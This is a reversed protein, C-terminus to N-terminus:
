RRHGIFGVVYGIGTTLAITAGIPLDLLFAVLTGVLSFLMSCLCSIGMMHSLRTAFLNATAAPLTLMTLVLIIGVVQMLIVTTIAILVLLFTYLKQIPIGQLRAEEEDFSLLLLKQYFLMVAAVVVIDLIMLLTLDSKTVWLINGILFNGLEVSFGPTLSLFLIGVSMGITWIAAIITDEREEFYTHIYSIFLACGVATILAGILPSFFTIHQTRELWLSFGLGGLIAHSIAGSIFSIRKVVVYTGMMGGAISALFAAFLSTLLFSSIIM